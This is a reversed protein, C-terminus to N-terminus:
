VSMGAKQLDVIWPPAERLYAVIYKRRSIYYWAMGGCGLIAALIVSGYLAIYATHEMQGISGFMQTAEPENSLAKDIESPEHLSTWMSSCAYIILLVGFILQNIALRKTVDPDLRRMLKAGLLEFYAILCMGIGLMAGTFTWFGTALTLFGFIAISWGSFAAASSAKRIKSFQQRAAAIQALHQPSAPTVAPSALHVPSPSPQPFPPPPPPSQPSSFPSSVRSM